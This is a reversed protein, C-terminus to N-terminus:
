VYREEGFLTKIVHGKAAAIGLEFHRDREKRMWAEYQSSTFTMYTVPKGAIQEVREMPLEKERDELELALPVETVTSAEAALHLPLVGIVHKGRVDEASAHALVPTDKSVIGHKVLYAVLGTHRTVVLEIRNAM